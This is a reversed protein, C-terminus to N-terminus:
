NFNENKRVGQIFQYGYYLAFLSIIFTLAGTIENFTDMPAPPLLHFVQEVVKPNGGHLPLLINYALAKSLLPIHHLFGDGFGLPIIILANLLAYLWLFRQNHTRKWFFLLTYPLLMVATGPIFLHLGFQYVGQLTILMATLTLSIVSLIAYRHTVQPQPISLNM